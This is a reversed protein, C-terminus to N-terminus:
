EIDDGIPPYLIKDNKPDRYLGKKLVKAPTGALLTYEETYKKNVVSNSAITCYSPIYTGKMITSKFGFWCGKGVIVSSFSIPPNSNNGDVLSLKHFDSDLFFTEWGCLVNDGIEIRHQCAIKLGATANFNNGFSLVGNKGVAIASANGINCRGNFFIAGGANQFLCGSSPYIAVDNFGLRIMAHKIEGKIIIKGKLKGFHLKYFVIPLKIAQRFPLYHFNFYVNHLIYRFIMLEWRLKRILM